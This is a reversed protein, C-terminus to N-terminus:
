EVAGEDVFETSEVPIPGTPVPGIPSPAVVFYAAFVFLVALFMMAILFASFTRRRKPTSTTPEVTPSEYPNDSM